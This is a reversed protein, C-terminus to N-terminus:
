YRVRSKYSEAQQLTSAGIKSVTLLQLNNEQLYTTPCLYGQKFLKERVRHCVVRSHSM